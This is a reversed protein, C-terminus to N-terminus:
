QGGWLGLFWGGLKTIKSSYYSENHVIYAVFVGTAWVIGIYVSLPSHTKNSM